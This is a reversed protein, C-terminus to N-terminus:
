IRVREWLSSLGERGVSSLGVKKKGSATQKEREYKLWCNKIKIKKLIEVLLAASM